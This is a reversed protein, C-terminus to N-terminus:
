RDMGIGDAICGKLLFQSYVACREPGQPSKMRIPGSLVPAGACVPLADNSDGETLLNGPPYHGQRDPRLQNEKAFLIEDENLRYTRNNHIAFDFNQRLENGDGIHIPSLTQLSVQYVTM